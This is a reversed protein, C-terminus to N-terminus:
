LHRSGLNQTHWLTLPTHQDVLTLQGYQILWDSQQEIRKPKTETQLM